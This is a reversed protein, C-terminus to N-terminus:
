RPSSSPVISMWKIIHYTQGSMSERNRFSTESGGPPRHGLWSRSYTREECRRIGPSYARSASQHRPLGLCASMKKCSKSKPKNPKPVQSLVQIDPAGRRAYAVNRAVLYTDYTKVNIVNCSGHQLVQCSVMLSVLVMWLHSTVQTPYSEM